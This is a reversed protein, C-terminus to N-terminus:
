CSSREWYKMELCEEGEEIEVPPVSAGYVLWMMGTGNTTQCELIKRNRRSM